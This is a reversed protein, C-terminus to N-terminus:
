MKFSQGHGDESVIEVPYQFCHLICALIGVEKSNLAGVRLTVVEANASHVDDSLKRRIDVLIAGYSKKRLRTDGQKYKDVHKQLVFYLPSSFVSNWTGVWDVKRGQRHHPFQELLSLQVQELAARACVNGGRRLAAMSEMRGERVSFDLLQVSQRLDSLAKARELLFENEEALAKELESGLAQL